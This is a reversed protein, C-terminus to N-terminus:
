CLPKIRALLADNFDKDWPLEREDSLFWKTIIATLVEVPIRHEVSRVCCHGVELIVDSTQDNSLDIKLYDGGKNGEIIM